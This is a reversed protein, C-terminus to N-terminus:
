PNEKQTSTVTVTTSTTEAPLPSQKLLTLVPIIAGGAAIKGIHVLGDHSFNFTEPMTLVGSLATAAGGIAAAFLSHLWSKWTNM